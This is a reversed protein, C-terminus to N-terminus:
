LIESRRLIPVSNRPSNPSERGSGPPLQNGWADWGARRARAFLELRPSPSVAEAIEYLRAPKESHKGRPAEIVNRLRDSPPIPCRGRVGFLCHETDIRFYSGMGPAGRKHWTLMTVYRFGWAHMIQFPGFGETDDREGFLRPVTVWLYLHANTAALEQVPLAALQRMSMTDYLDSVLTRAHTTGEAQPSKRYRWPPDAVITGYPPSLNRWLSNM